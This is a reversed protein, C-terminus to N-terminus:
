LDREEMAGEAAAKMEEWLEFLPLADKLSKLLRNIWALLKKLQDIGGFLAFRRWARTTGQLKVALQKGDLGLGQLQTSLPPLQYEIDMTQTRADTWGDQLPQRMARPFLLQDWHFFMNDLLNRTQVIFDKLTTIPLQPTTLTVATSM